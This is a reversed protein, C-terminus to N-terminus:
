MELAATRRAAGGCCRVSGWALIHHAAHTGLWRPVAQAASQLAGPNGPIGCTGPLRVEGDPKHLFQEAKQATAKADREINEVQELTCFRGRGAGKEGAPRAKAMLVGLRWTGRVAADSIQQRTEEWARAPDVGQAAKDYLPSYDLVAGCGDREGATFEGTYVEGSARRCAPEGCSSARVCFRATQMHPGCQACHSTCLLSSRWAADAVRAAQSARVREEALQAIM